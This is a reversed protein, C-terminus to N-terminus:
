VARLAAGVAVTSGQRVWAGPFREVDVLFRAQFGLHSAFAPWIVLPVRGNAVKGGFPLLSFGPAIYFLTRCFTCSITSGPTSHLVVGVTSLVFTENLFSCSNERGM